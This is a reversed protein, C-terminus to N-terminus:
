KNILSIDISNSLSILAKMPNVILREIGHVTQSQYISVQPGSSTLALVPPSTPEALQRQPPPPLYLQNSTQFPNPNITRIIQGHILQIVSVVYTNIDKTVHKCAKKSYDHIHLYAEDHFM